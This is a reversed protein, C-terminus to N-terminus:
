ETILLLLVAAAGVAVGGTVALALWVSSRYREERLDRRNRVFSAGGAVAIAGGLAVLITGVIAGIGIGDALAFRDVVYGLGIVAIATRVWSLLTRENALHDRAVGSDDTARPPPGLPDEDPAPAAGM